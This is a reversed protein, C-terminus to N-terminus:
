ALPSGDDDPEFRWDREPLEGAESGFSRLAQVLHAYADPPISDVYRALEDRRSQSLKRVLDEGSRTLSMRVERRDMATRHRRILGKRALRDCMRTATSPAVGLDAAIDTIRQPGRSALVILTRSQTLTVEGDVDALTRGALAVMARGALLLAEIVDERTSEATEAATETTRQM